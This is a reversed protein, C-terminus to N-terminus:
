HYWINKNEKKLRAFIYVYVNANLTISLTHRNKKFREM